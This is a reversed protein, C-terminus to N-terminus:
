HHGTHREQGYPQSRLLWLLAPASGPSVWGPPPTRATSGSVLHCTVSTSSCQLLSCCVGDSRSGALLFAQLKPPAHGRRARAGLPTMCSWPVSLSDFLLYSAFPTLLLQSSPKSPSFCLTCFPHKEQLVWCCEPSSFREAGHLSWLPRPGPSLPLHALPAQLLSVLSTGGPPPAPLYRPGAATAPTIRVPLLLSRLPPQQSCCLLRPACLSLYRWCRERRVRPADTLPYCCPFLSSFDLSSCLSFFSLFCSNASINIGGAGGIFVLFLIFGIQVYFALSLSCAGGRRGLSSSSSCCCCCRSSQRLGARHAGGGRQQRPASPVGAREWRSGRGPVAAEAKKVDLGKSKPATQLM